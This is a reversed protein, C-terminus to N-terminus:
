VPKQYHVELTKGVNVTINHYSVNKLTRLVSLFFVLGFTAQSDIM